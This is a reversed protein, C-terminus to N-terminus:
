EVVVFFVVRSVSLGVVTVSEVSLIVSIVFVLHGVSIDGSNVVLRGVFTVVSVVVGLGHVSSGAVRIIPDVVTSGIVFPGVSRVDESHGDSIDVSSVSLGTVLSGEVVFGVFIVVCDIVEACHVRCGVSESVSLIADSHGDSLGM